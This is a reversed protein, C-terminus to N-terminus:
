RPSMTPDAPVPARGADYRDPFPGPGDHGSRVGCLANVALLALLAILPLTWSGTASHLAAMGVPGLCALLYGGTQAFTSLAAIREPSKGRHAYLVGPLSQGGGLGAGLVLACAISTPGHVLLVGLVGVACVAITALIHPRHDARRGALAPAIFGGVGVGVIFVSQAVGALGASTGDAVMISPLWSLVAYFLLTQIGFFCLLSWAVPTRHVRHSHTAQPGHATAPPRVRGQPAIAIAAVAAPVIAVAIAAHWSGTAHTVPVMLAAIVASGTGMCVAYVGMMVGTRAAPFRTHVLVPVLVNVLATAGAVVATGVMLGTMGLPRILSGGLLILSAMLLGREDGLRRRVMPALPACLGMLLPPLVGLVTVATSGFHAVPALPGVQGFSVRTNLSVAVFGCVLLIGSLTTSRGSRPPRHAHEAHLLSVTTM